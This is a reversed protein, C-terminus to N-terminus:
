RARGRAGTPIGPAQVFGAEPVEGRRLAILQALIAIAIEAPTCSGIALGVPGHLREVAAASLGLLQQLRARRRTNSARSGLAGVYFADSDLAEMLALDDLRPDHTLAVVVSRGDGAWARVAEDPMRRDLVGDDLAWTAAYRRRPECVIVQYDLAQAMRALHRSLQGAGIILLRWVPGFVKELVRGDYRFVAKRDADRIEVEGSGLALRRVVSRGAQLAELVPVLREPGAVPELVLELQGGCPLGARRAEQAELGVRATRPLAGAQAQVSRALEPELCGGSISGVWQGDARIVAISGAPRPSAGEIRAVTVLTVAEGAALWGCAAQVVERDDSDM